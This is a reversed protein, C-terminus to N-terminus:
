SFVSRAVATVDIRMGEPVLLSLVPPRWWASLSV